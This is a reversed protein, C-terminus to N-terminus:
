VYRLDDSAKVFMAALRWNPRHGYESKARIREVMEEWSETQPIDSDVDALKQRSQLLEDDESKNSDHDLLIDQGGAHDGSHEDDNMSANSHSPVLEIGQKYTSVSAESQNIDEEFEQTEYYEQWSSEPGATEVEAVLLFPCKHATNFVITEDVLIKLVKHEEVAHVPFYAGFPLSHSLGRLKAKLALLREERPLRLLWEDLDTLTKIFGIKGDLKNDKITRAFLRVRQILFDINERSTPGQDIHRLVHKHHVVELDKITGEIQQSISQILAVQQESKINASLVKFEDRIKAMKETVVKDIDNADEKHGLHREDEEPEEVQKNANLSCIVLFAFHPSKSCGELLYAWVASRIPESKGHLVVSVFPPILDTLITLNRVCMEECSDDREEYLWELVRLRIEGPTLLQGKRECEGVAQLTSAASHTSNSRQGLRAFEQPLEKGITQKVDQVHNELDLKNEDSLPLVNALSGHVAEAQKKREEPTLAIDELEDEGDSFPKSAYHLAKSLNSSAKTFEQTLKSIVVSQAKSARIVNPNSEEM